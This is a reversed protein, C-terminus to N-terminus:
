KTSTTPSIKQSPTTVQAPTEDELLLPITSPTPGSVQLTRGLEWITNGTPDVLDYQVIIGWISKHRWTTLLVDLNFNGQPVTNLPLRANKLLDQAAQDGGKVYIKKLHEFAPPLKHNKQLLSLDDALAQSMRSSPTARAAQWLHGAVWGASTLM